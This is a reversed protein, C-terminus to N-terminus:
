KQNGGAMGNFSFGKFEDDVEDDTEEDHDIDSIDDEDIMAFDDEVDGPRPKKSSHKGIGSTRSAPPAPARKQNSKPKTTPADILVYRDVQMEVDDEDFPPEIQTEPDINSTDAPSTSPPIFEPTYKKNYVDDWNIPAFFPHSKIEEAGNRSGLRLAPNRHLLKTIIDRAPATVEPPFNLRQHLINDYMQNVNESYFPPLGTLLEYLLTGVTWWDVAKGHGGNRLIEPAIYEPTGCFTKATNSHLVDTKSLGFDTLKIHGDATLLINEPKLDRYIINRKHLAEFALIIEAVYLRSRVESFQGENKLHFFLDGGNAYDLVLYLKKENQFAYYLNVIFPHNMSQLVSKETLTHQIQDGSVIDSKRLIKLAYYQQTDKHRVLVVKGFSGKGITRIAEFDDFSLRNRNKVRSQITTLDYSGKSTGGRLIANKQEQEPLASSGVDSSTFYTLSSEEQGM